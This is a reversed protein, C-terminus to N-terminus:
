KEFEFHVTTAPSGPSRAARRLLVGNELQAAKIGDPIPSLHASVSLPHVSDPGPASSASSASALLANRYGGTDDQLLWLLTPEKAESLIVISLSL